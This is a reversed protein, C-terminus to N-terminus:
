GYTHMVLGELLSNIKNEPMKHYHHNPRNIMLNQKNHDTNKTNQTNAHCMLGVLGCLNFYCVSFRKNSKNM